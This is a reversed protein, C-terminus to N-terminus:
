VTWPDKLKITSPAAHAHAFNHFQCKDDREPFRFTFLICKRRTVFNLQLSIFINHFHLRMPTILHRWKPQSFLSNSYLWNLTLILATSNQFELLSTSKQNTYPLFPHGYPHPLQFCSESKSMKKEGRTQTPCSFFMKFLSKESGILLTM